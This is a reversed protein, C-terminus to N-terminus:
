HLLIISIGAPRLIQMINFTELDYKELRSEALTIIIIVYQLLLLLLM